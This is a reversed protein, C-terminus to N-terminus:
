LTLEKSDLKVKYMKGSAKQIRPLRVLKSKKPRLHQFRKSDDHQRQSTHFRFYQLSFLLPFLLGWWGVANTETYLNDWPPMFSAIQPNQPYFYVKAQAGPPPLEELPFHSEFEIVKQSTSELPSEFRGKVPPEGKQQRAANSEIVTGRITQHNLVLVLAKSWNPNGLYQGLLFCGALSLILIKQTNSLM